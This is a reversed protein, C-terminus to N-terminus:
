CPLYGSQNSISTSSNPARRPPNDKTARQYLEWPSLGTVAKWIGAAAGLTIALLIISATLWHSRAYTIWKEVLDENKPPTDDKKPM